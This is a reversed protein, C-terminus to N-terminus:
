SIFDNNAFLFYFMKETFIGENEADEILPEYESRKYVHHRVQRFFLGFKCMIIVAVIM